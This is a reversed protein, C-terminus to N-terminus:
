SFCFNARKCSPEGKGSIKLSQRSCALGVSVSSKNTYTYAEPRSYMDNNCTLM